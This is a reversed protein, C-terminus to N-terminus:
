VKLRIIEKLVEFSAPTHGLLEGDAEIPLKPVSRISARVRKAELIDPHPVHQGSYVRPMVAIEEWKTAHEIQIDFVGDTPAAKPAIKMGGGFFQGNAVVLNNMPGTYSRDVLDVTVEAPKHKRLAMWYALVYRPAGLWRPLRAARDVVAAGLGVEAVNAFYRIATVGDQTYTIKGVDIAFSGPGDLHAVAHGPMSPIGFTRVFDAGTGAAVVGMVADPNVARDDGILGNVIEHITGDGGVAVVFRCGRELAQRTLETAHGPRQTFVVDYALERIELHRRVEAMAKAGGGRGARPNCILVMPGFSSSV